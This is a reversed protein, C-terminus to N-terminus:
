IIYHFPLLTSVNKSFNCRMLWTFNLSIIICWTAFLLWNIYPIFFFQKMGVFYKEIWSFCSLSVTLSLCHWNHLHILKCNYFFFTTGHFYLDRTSRYLNIKCILHLLNHRDHKIWANLSNLSKHIRFYCLFFGFEFLSICWLYLVVKIINVQQQYFFFVKKMILIILLYLLSLAQEIPSCCRFPLSLFWKLENSNKKNHTPTLVM